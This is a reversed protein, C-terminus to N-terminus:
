KKLVPEVIQGENVLGKGQVIVQTNETIEANLVEFYDKDSLGIKVPLRKVTKNEVVLVFDENKFSMKSIIPLSLINKRSNIKMMVKAYMGTLITGDENAIDIEVQMTKSQADLVNATRSIKAPYIKGSLEPFTVQVEMGQKLAVADTEPVPITLRIPNIEQIEVVPQPNKQSLGSQLLSGNDVFRKTIIGSFPAKINLFSLRSNVADLNAKASFYEAEANEVQQINTLAPTKEYVSKLRNYVSEKAQLEAKLKIQQQVLEPNELIAITEGKQVKDGIEKKIQSLMGSEMAYITVKQNPYATGTILIEATFSRQKPTVVEVKQIKNSTLETEKESQEKQNCSTQIFVVFVLFVMLANLGNLSLSDRLSSLKKITIKKSILNKM